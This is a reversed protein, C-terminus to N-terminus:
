LKFELQDSIDVIEYTWQNYGTNTPIIASVCANVARALDHMLDANFDIWREGTAVVNQYGFCATLQTPQGSFYDNWFTEVSPRYYQSVGATPVPFSPTYFNFLLGRGFASFVHEKISQNFNEYNKYSNGSGHSYVTQGFSIQYNDLFNQGTLPTYDYWSNAELWVPDLMASPIYADLFNYEFNKGSLCAIREAMASLLPKVGEEITKGHFEGWENYISM